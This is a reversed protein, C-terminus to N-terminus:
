QRGEGDTRVQSKPAAPVSKSIAQERELSKSSSDQAISVARLLDLGNTKKQQELELNGLLASSPTAVPPLLGSPQPALIGGNLLRLLESNPEMYHLKRLGDMYMARAELLKQIMLSEAPTPQPAPIM